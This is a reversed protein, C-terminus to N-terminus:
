WIRLPDNRYEAFLLVRRGHILYVLTVTIQHIRFHHDAKQTSVPIGDFLLGLFLSVRNDFWFGVLHGKVHVVM